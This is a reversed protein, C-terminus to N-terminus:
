KITHFVPLALVQSFYEFVSVSFFGSSNSAHIGRRSTRRNKGVQVHESLQSDQMLPRVPPGPNVGDAWLWNFATTSLALHVTEIGCGRARIWLGLSSTGSNGQRCPLFYLFYNERM